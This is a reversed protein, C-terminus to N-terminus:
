HAATTDHECLVASYACKRVHLHEENDISVLLWYIKLELILCKCRLYFFLLLLRINHGSTM